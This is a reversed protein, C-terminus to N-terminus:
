VPGILPGARLEQETLPVPGHCGAHFNTFVSGMPAGELPQFVPEFGTPAVVPNWGGM